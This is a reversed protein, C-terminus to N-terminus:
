TGNWLENCHTRYIPTNFVWAVCCICCRENNGVRYFNNGDLWCRSLVVFRFCTKRHIHLNSKM